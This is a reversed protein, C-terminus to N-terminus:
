VMTREYNNTSTFLEEINMSSTIKLFSRVFGHPSEVKSLNLMEFLVTHVVHRPFANFKVTFARAFDRM